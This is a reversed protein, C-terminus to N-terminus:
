PAGTALSRILDQPGREPTLQQYKQLDAISMVRGDFNEQLFEEGQYGAIRFSTIVEDHWYMKQELNVFRFFIGLVLLITCLLLLLAQPRKSHLNMPM